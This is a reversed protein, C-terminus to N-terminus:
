ETATIHRAAKSRQESKARRIENMKNCQHEGTDCFTEFHGLWEPNAPGEDIFRVLNKVQEVTKSHLHHEMTCADKDALKEPVGIFILFAKLTDHRDKVVRGVEEGKPTLFVGEYRKYDVYDGNSLKKVMEVVSPPQVGLEKSIDKIRAYGKRQSVNFIAEMYDEAKRSLKNKM